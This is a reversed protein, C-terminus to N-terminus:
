AEFLADEVAACLWHYVALHYEQVRYTETDPVRVCVDAAASLPSEKEGTLAVVRGGRAKVALAALRVNEAKGSTSVAILATGPRAYAFALQAYVMAPDRDNAFASLSATMGTLPLAFIGEQLSAALREGEPGLATLAAANAPTLPREKLFGKTLEGVIHDADAASGGNGCTLVAGDKAAALLIALAKEMDPRCVTLAPIRRFVEERDFKM